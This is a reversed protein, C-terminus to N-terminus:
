HDYPVEKQDICSYKYPSGLIIMSTHTLIKTMSTENILEKNVRVGNLYINYGELRIDDTAEDWKFIANTSGKRFLILNGPVTPHEIDYTPIVYKGDIIGSGLPSTWELGFCEGGVVEWQYVHFAYVKGGELYVPDSYFHDSHSTYDLILNENEYSADTSLFFKEVDGCHKIKFSYDGTVPPILYGTFSARFFNAGHSLPLDDFPIASYDQYMEQMVESYAASENEKPIDRGNIPNDYMRFLVGSSEYSILSVNFKSSFSDVGGNATGGDDQATVTITATDNLEGATVYLFAINSTDDYEVSDIKIAETNSSSAVFDVHQIKDDDGDSVYPIIITNNGSGAYLLTTQVPGFVPANNVSPDRVEVLASLTVSDNEDSYVHGGDDRITIKIEAVGKTGAPSYKIIATDSTGDYQIEDIIIVTNDSSTATLAMIQEREDNGDHIGSLKLVQQNGSVPLWDPKKLPNVEPPNNPLADYGVRFDDIELSASSGNDDDAKFSLKEIGTVDIFNAPDASFNLYDSYDFFLEYWDGPLLDYPIYEGTYGKQDVLGTEIGPSTLPLNSKVRMRVIPIGALNLPVNFEFATNKNKTNSLQCNLLENAVNHSFDFYSTTIWSSVDDATSFDDSYKRM